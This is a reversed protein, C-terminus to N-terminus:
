TIRENQAAIPRDNYEVRMRDNERTARDKQLETIKDSQQYTM